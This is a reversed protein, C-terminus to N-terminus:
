KITVNREDQMGTLGTALSLHLKPISQRAKNQERYSPLATALAQARGESSSIPSEAAGVPDLAISHPWFCRHIIPPIFCHHPSTAKQMHEEKTVGFHHKQTSNHLRFIHRWSVLATSIIISPGKSYTCSICGLERKHGINIEKDIFTFLCRTGEQKTATEDSAWM